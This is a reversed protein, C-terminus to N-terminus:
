APTTPTTPEDHHQHQSLWDVLLRALLDVVERESAPDLPVLEPPRVGLPKAAHRVAAPRESM